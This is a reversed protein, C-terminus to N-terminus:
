IRYPELPVRLVLRLTENDSTKSHDQDVSTQAFPNSRKLTSSIPLDTFLRNIIQEDPGATRNHAVDDSKM